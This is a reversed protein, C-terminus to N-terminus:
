ERNAKKAHYKPAPVVTGTKNVEYFTVLIKINNTEPPM